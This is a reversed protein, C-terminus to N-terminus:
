DKQEFPFGLLCLRLRCVSDVKTLIDEKTKRRPREEKLLNNIKLRM